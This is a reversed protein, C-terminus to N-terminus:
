TAARGHQRKESLRGQVSAIRASPRPQLWTTQPRQESFRQHPAADHMSMERGQWSMGWGGKRLPHLLSHDVLSAPYSLSLHHNPPQYSIYVSTACHKESSNELSPLNKSSTRPWRRGRGAWRRFEGILLVADSGSTTLHWSDDVPNPCKTNGLGPSVVAADDARLICPEQGRLGSLTLLRVSM